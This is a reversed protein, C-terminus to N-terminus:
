EVRMIEIDQMMENSQNQAEYFDEWTWQGDFTWCLTTKEENFWRVKIGM